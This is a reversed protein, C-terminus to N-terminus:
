FFFKTEPGKRAKPLRRRAKGGKRANHRTKRDVHTSYIQADQGEKQGTDGITAKLKGIIFPFIKKENRKHYCDDSGHDTRGCFKCKRKKVCDKAFHNLGFCNKCQDQVVEINIMTSVNQWTIDLALLRRKEVDYEMEQLTEIIEKETERTFFNKLLVCRNTIEQARKHKQEAVYSSSFVSCKPSRSKIAKTEINESKNEKEESSIQMDNFNKAIKDLEQYQCIDETGINTIEDISWQGIVLTPSKKCFYEKRVKMKQKWINNENIEENKMEEKSDQEKQSFSVVNLEYHQRMKKRASENRDSQDENENPRKRKRTPVYLDVSLRRCNNSNTNMDIDYNDNMANSKSQGLSSLKNINTSITDNPNPLIALSEKRHQ